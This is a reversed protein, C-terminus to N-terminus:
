GGCLTVLQLKLAFENTPNTTQISWNIRKERLASQIWQAEFLHAPSTILIVGSNRPLTVQEGSMEVPRPYPLLNLKEMRPQEKCTTYSFLGLLTVCLLYKIFSIPTLSDTAGCVTKQQTAQSFHL